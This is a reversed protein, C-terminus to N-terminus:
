HDAKGYNTRDFEKLQHWFGVYNQHRERDIEGREVAALVACGQETTHACDGWRCGGIHPGFEPFCDVLRDPDTMGMEVPDFTSFGPTDCVLAGFECPYFTVHRTTNKGRGIRRSLEDTRIAESPLFHQLLSSKGVGSNGAFVVTGERLLDTIEPIGEGTRASCPIVRYGAASLVARLEAGPDEDCKNLLIVPMTGMYAAMACMGDIFRRDTVPPAASVVLLLRDVNSVAPRILRNKRSLVTLVTGMGDAERRVTVLDGPLVDGRLLGRARCRLTEEGMRVAIDGGSRHSLVRGQLTEAPM